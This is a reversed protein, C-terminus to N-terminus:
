AVRKMVIGKWYYLYEAAKCLIDPDDKALGLMLNCKKCLIGRPYKGVHCHDAAASSGTMSRHQLEVSCIACLGNQEHLRKNFLEETFGNQRRKLGISYESRKKSHPKGSIGGRWKHHKEGTHRESVMQKFEDTHKIGKRFAVGKMRQRCKEKFSDSKIVGRQADGIRKRQEDTWRGTKGKFPSPVGKKMSSVYVSRCAWSCTSKQNKLLDKNCVKCHKMCIIKTGGSGYM